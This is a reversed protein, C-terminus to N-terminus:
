KPILGKREKWAGQQEGAGHSGMVRCIGTGGVNRRCDHPQQGMPVLFPSPQSCIWRPAEASMPTGTGWGHLVLQQLGLLAWVPLLPKPMVSTREAPVCYQPLAFHDWPVACSPRTGPVLLFVWVTGLRCHCQPLAALRKFNGYNWLLDTHYNREAIFGRNGDRVRM